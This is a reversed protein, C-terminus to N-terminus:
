TNLTNALWDLYSDSGDTIPLIILEPTDYPHLAPLERKLDAVKEATTKMLVLWEREDCLKGEWHYFSRINPIVNACAVLRAEVLGKALNAADAENGLTSIALLYNSM